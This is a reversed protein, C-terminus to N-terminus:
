ASEQLAVKVRAEDPRSCLDYAHQARDIPFRHSVYGEFDGRHALLYAAGRGLVSVWDDRTRGSALTLRRHYMEDFPISYDGAAASGFGLVFGDDAVARLAGAVLDPQRGVADIVVSPRVRSETRDRAWEQGTAAIFEDAGYGLAAGARGAVPDVAVVRRAGSRRLVHVFALGIAGAGLVAIERDAVQPLTSVARLVTSLPQITVAEAPLMDSPVPILRDADEILESALGTLGTGVVTQGERLRPDRSELVRGVVEHLPVLSAGVRRDLASVGALEGIDSGCIGGALFRLRVEGPALERSDIGGPLKALLGTRDVRFEWADLDSPPATSM